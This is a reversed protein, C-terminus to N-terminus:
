VLRKLLFIFKSQLTLDTCLTWQIDLETIFLFNWTWCSPGTYLCNYNWHFLNLLDWAYILTISKQPFPPWWFISQLSTIISHTLSCKGLQGWIETNPFELPANVTSQILRQQGDTGRSWMAIPSRLWHVSECRPESGRHNDHHSSFFSSTIKGGAKCANTSEPGGIALM